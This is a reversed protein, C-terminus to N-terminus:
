AVSLDPKGDPGIRPMPRALLLGNQAKRMRMEKIEQLAISKMEDCKGRLLASGNVLDESYYRLPISIVMVKKSEDTFGWVTEKDDYLKVEEM